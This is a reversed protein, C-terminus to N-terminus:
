SPGPPDNGHSAGTKTSAVTVSTSPQSSTITVAFNDGVLFSNSGGRTSNSIAVSPQNVVPFQLVPAAQSGGVYWTETWTGVSTGLMYGALQFNGSANTTGEPVNTGQNIGNKTLTVTVALNAAGGTINILFNDNVVFFTSEGQQQEHDNNSPQRECRVPHASHPM